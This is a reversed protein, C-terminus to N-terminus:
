GENTEYIFAGYINVHNKDTPDGDDDYIPCATYRTGTSYPVGNQGFSETTLNPDGDFIVYFRSFKSGEFRVGKVPPWTSTDTVFPSGIRISNVGQIDIKYKNYSGKNDYASLAKASSESYALTSDNIYGASVIKAQKYITKTYISGDPKKYEVSSAIPDVQDSFFYLRYQSYPVDEEKLTQDGTVTDVSSAGVEFLYMTQGPALGPADPVKVVGYMTISGIGSTGTIRTDMRSAQTGTNAGGANTPDGGPPTFVGDSNYDVPSIFVNVGEYINGAAEDAGGAPLIQYDMSINPNGTGFDLNIEGTKETYDDKSKTIACLKEEQEALERAFENNSGRQTVALRLVQMIMAAMISFIVFAILIEVLTFGSRKSFVKKM